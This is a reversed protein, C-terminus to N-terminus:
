TRIGRNLVELIKELLEGIAFAETTIITKKEDPKKINQQESIYKDAFNM